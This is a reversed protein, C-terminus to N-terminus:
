FRGKRRKSQQQLRREGKTKPKAQGSFHHSLFDGVTATQNPGPPNLSQGDMGPFM